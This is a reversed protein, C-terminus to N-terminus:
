IQRFAEQVATVAGEFKSAEILIMHGSPKIGLEQFTRKSDSRGEDVTQSYEFDTFALAHRHFIEDEPHLYYTEGHSRASSKKQKKAKRTADDENDLPSEVEQYSKSLILYHSFQYPEKDELAWAVEELLMKYMPPAVESPVNILRETLIVGVTNSASELITVLESSRVSSRARGVLYSTLDRIVPKTKHVLLILDAPLKSNYVM